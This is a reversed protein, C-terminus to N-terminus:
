RIKYKINPETDPFEPLGSFIDDFNKVTELLKMTKMDPNVWIGDFLYEDYESRNKYALVPENLSFQANIGEKNGRADLMIWQGNVFFANFCHLFYGKSDDDALTIHQYCFGTPIMQSRLLAALLNSKTHCIGTKHKLVSSAKFTIIASDIDCSHPIEDRVFEFAMKAKDYVSQKDSFLEKSKEIINQSSYDIYENECLFLDLDM